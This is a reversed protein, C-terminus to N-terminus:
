VKLDSHVVNLSHLHQMGTAIDLATDLVAVYTPQTFLHTSAHPTTHFPTTFGDLTTTFGDDNTPM